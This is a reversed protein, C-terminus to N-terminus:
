GPLLGSAQGVLPLESLSDGQALPGTLAGTSVPKFDAVQPTVVNDLPDTGTKALPNIALHKVPGLASGLASDTALTSGLASDSLPVAPAPGAAASASGSAALAAAAAAVTVTAAARLLSNLKPRAHNPM